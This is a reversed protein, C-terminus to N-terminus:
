CQKMLAGSDHNHALTLIKRKYKDYNNDIVYVQNKINNILESQRVISYYKHGMKKAKLLFSLLFQAEIIMSENTNSNVYIINLKIDVYSADNVDNWKHLIDNFGNKIRM